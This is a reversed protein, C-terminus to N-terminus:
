NGAQSDPAKPTDLTTPGAIILETEVDRKLEAKSDRGLKDFAIIADIRDGRVEAPRKEPNM